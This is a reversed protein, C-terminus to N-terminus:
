FKNIFYWFLSLPLIVIHFSKVPTEPTCYKPNVHCFATEARYVVIEYRDSDFLEKHRSGQKRHLSPFKNKSLWYFFAPGLVLGAKIDIVM